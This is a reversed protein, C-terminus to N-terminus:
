VLAFILLLVLFFQVLIFIWFGYYYTFATWLNWCDVTHHIQPFYENEAQLSLTFFASVPLSSFVLQCTCSSIFRLVVSHRPHLVASGSSSTICIPLVARCAQGKSLFVARGVSNGHQLGLRRSRAGSMM